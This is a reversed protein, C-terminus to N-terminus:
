KNVNNINQHRINFSKLNKYFHNDYLLNHINNNQALDSFEVRYKYSITIWCCIVIYDVMQIIIFFPFFKLDLNNKKIISFFIFFRYNVIILIM